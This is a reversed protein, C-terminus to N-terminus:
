IYSSQWELYWSPSTLETRYWFVFCCVVHKTILINALLLGGVLGVTAGVKAVKKVKEQNEVQEMTSREM